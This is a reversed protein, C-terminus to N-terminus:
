SWEKLKGIIYEVAREHQERGGGRITMPDGFSFWVRRSPDIRGFEKVFRGQKWADTKLAVPVLPAQARKALKVGISNFAEPDLGASRTTQPFIIISSGGRIRESGKELVVRLDERPNVRGVLIPDRSGMVHRFFPYKVLNKKVVFTVEMLPQIIGPLIMTELTSMHNAVFVGPSPMRRLVNIREVTVDLGVSELRDLVELSDRAWDAGSYAGRKAQRAARIAISIFGSYFSMGPFHKSCASITRKRTRYTDSQSLSEM